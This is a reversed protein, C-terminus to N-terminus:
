DVIDIEGIQRFLLQHPLTQHMDAKQNRRNRHSPRIFDHVARRVFRM